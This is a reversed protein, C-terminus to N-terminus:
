SLIIEMFDTYFKQEFFANVKDFSRRYRSSLFFFFSLLSRDVM